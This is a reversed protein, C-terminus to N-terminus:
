KNIYIEYKIGAEECLQKSLEIDQKWRENDSEISVIRKIGSQIIKACCRSCPFMPYTYITKGSLDEKAYLLCNEEAHLIIQYKISRDKLRKDDKIGGPFGNYGLSVVRKGDTIIAGVKTSPDKSWTSIHEALTLFRDDWKIKNM